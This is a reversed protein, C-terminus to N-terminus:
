VSIIENGTTKLSVTIDSIISLFDLIELDGKILGVVLQGLGGLGELLLLLHVLLNLGVDGGQGSSDHQHLLFGLLGLLGEGVGDGPEGVLGLLSVGDELLGLDELALAHVVLDGNFLVVFVQSLGGLHGAVILLLEILQGSLESDLLVLESSGQFAGLQGLVLELADLLLELDDTLVHLLELLGGLLGHLPLLLELLLDQADLQLEFGGLSPVLISLHVDGLKVLSNVVNLIFDVSLLELDLLNSVFKSLSKIVHKSMILIHMM